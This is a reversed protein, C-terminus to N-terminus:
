APAPSLGGATTLPDPLKVTRTWYAEVANVMEVLEDFSSPKQIYSNAGADYCQRIDTEDGSTTYVVIPIGKLRPHSRIEVLAELGTKKPMSLDLFVLKPTSADKREVFRGRCLLYDMLEEGDAVQSLNASIGAAELAEKLLFFDDADDDAMLFTFGDRHIDM